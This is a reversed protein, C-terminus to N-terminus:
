FCALVVVVVQELHRHNVNVSIALWTGLREVGIQLTESSACFPIARLCVAHAARKSRDQKLLELSDESIAQRM